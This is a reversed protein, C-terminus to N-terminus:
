PKVMDVDPDIGWLASAKIWSKNGKNIRIQCWDPQCRMLEAVVGNEIRQIAQVNTAPQPYTKQLEEDTTNIIVYRKRSLLNQQIWGAEGYIDSIKRWTEFSATVKVPWSKRQYVWQIPYRASPGTRVNAEHSKISAFYTPSAALTLTSTTCVIGTVVWLFLRSESRFM